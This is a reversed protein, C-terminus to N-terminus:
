VLVIGNDPHYTTLPIVGNVVDYLIFIALRRAEPVLGELVAQGISRNILNILISQLSISNLGLSALSKKLYEEPNNMFFDKLYELLGIYSISDHNLSINIIYEATAAYVASLAFAGITSAYFTASNVVAQDLLSFDFMFIIFTAEFTKV